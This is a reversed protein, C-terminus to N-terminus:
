DIATEDIQDNILDRLEKFTAVYEGARNCESGNLKLNRHAAEELARDYYNVGKSSVRGIKKRKGTQTNEIWWFNDLTHAVQWM